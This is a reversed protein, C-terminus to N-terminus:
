QVNEKEEKWLNIKNDYPLNEIYFPIDSLDDEDITTDELNSYFWELIEKKSPKGKIAIIYIYGNCNLLTFETAKDEYAKKYFDEPSKEDFCLHDSWFEEEGYDLTVEPIYKCKDFEYLAMWWSNFRKPSINSMIVSNLWNCMHLGIQEVHEGIYMHVICKNKMEIDGKSKGM